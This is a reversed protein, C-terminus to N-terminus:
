SAGQSPEADERRDETSQPAPSVGLRKSIEALHTRAVESREASSEKRRKREAREDILRQHETARRERAVVVDVGLSPHFQQAHARDVLAGLYSVRSSRITGQKAMAGALEDVVEQAVDAPLSAVLEEAVVVERSTLSPPLILAAPRQDATTTSTKNKHEKHTRIDGPSGHMPSGHGTSGDKPSGDGSSGDMPKGPITRPRKDTPTQDGDPTAPEDSVVHIWFWKGDEQQQREARYYGHRELNKRAHRWADEGLGLAAQIQTVYLTWGPRSVLSIMYVLALRATPTIRRDELIDVPVSAWPRRVQGVIKGKKPGPTM